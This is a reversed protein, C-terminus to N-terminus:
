PEGRHARRQGVSELQEVQRLWLRQRMSLGVGPRAGVVLAEAAKASEAVGKRVLLAAVFAASRGHGSACHVFVREARACRELVGRISDISPPAHTDLTPVSIYGAHARVAAPESFEATLDCVVEVGDPLERAYCRRGLFVGPAVEHWADAGALLRHLHWALWTMALFPLLLIVRALGLAGHEGKGFVKPTGLWYAGGVMLFSAGAWVFLPWGGPMPVSLAAIAGGLGALIVGRAPDGRRM